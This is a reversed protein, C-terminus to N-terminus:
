SGHIRVTFRAPRQEVVKIVAPLNLSLDVEHSGPGLGNLDLYVQEGGLDLSSLVRTPGSLRLYVLSPVVTYPGSSDRARVAVRPFEKTIPVDELSVSVKVRNPTLTLLKGATALRLTRSKEERAGELDFPLTEVSLMKGVESRPGRVKVDKPSVKIGGVKFGVAPKGSFRVVVPLLRVIAEELRVNFVSPSIRRIQVGRPPNFFDPSLRFTSTGARAGDLDLVVKLRDLDLTSLRAPTGTVRLEIRGPGPNLVVVDSPINRLEVQVEIGREAAKQGANVFFWLGLAFALSFLKLGLNSVSLTVIKRWYDGM